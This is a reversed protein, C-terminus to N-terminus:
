GKRGHYDAQAAIQLEKHMHRCNENLLDKTMICSDNLPKQLVLSIAEILTENSLKEEELIVACGNQVAYVANALQEGRSSKRSIPICVARKGLALIESVANSGCRTVVVDAQAYLDTMDDTYELQVYGPAKIDPNKKNKGCLHTIQFRKSLQEAHEWISQNMGQSGQSGGMILVSVRDKEEGEKLTGLSKGRLLEPRIVLGSCECPIGHIKWLTDPFTTFIKEAFRVCIKNALGMSIDTERIIVPIKRLWAALVVPLSVFGGGSLVIGAKERKLIGYADAIGKLVRFIDKVNEFSLYRRLKGTSIPFYAIEEGKEILGREAGHWSGIYVIENEPDEKLFPILVKNAMAHGATGGGTLVIKM